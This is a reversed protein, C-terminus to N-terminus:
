KEEGTGRTTYREARMARRAFVPERHSALEAELESVRAREQALKVKLKANESRLSDSRSVLQCCYRATEVTSMGALEATMRVEGYEEAPRHASPRDAGVEVVRDPAGCKAWTSVEVELSVVRKGSKQASIVGARRAATVRDKSVVWGHQRLYRVIEPESLERM